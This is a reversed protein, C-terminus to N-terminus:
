RRQMPKLGQLLEFGRANWNAMQILKSFELRKPLITEYNFWILQIFEGEGKFRAIDVNIDMNTITKKINKDIVISERHKTKWIVYNIIIQNINEALLKKSMGKRVPPIKIKNLIDTSLDKSSDEFTDILIDHIMSRTANATKSEIVVPDELQRLPCDNTYWYAQDFTVIM